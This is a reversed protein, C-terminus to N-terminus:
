RPQKSLAYSLPVAILYGAIGAIPIFKSGQNLLEPNTLVVLVAVGALVTGLMIWIFLTRFMVRRGDRITIRHLRHQFPRSSSSKLCIELHRMRERLLFRRAKARRM